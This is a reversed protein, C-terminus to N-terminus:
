TKNLVQRTLFMLATSIM